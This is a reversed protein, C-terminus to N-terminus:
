YWGLYRFYELEKDLQYLLTKGLAFEAGADCEIDMFFLYEWKKDDCPLSQIKSVNLGYNAVIEMVNALAGSKHALSFEISILNANNSVANEKSLSVFRTCNIGSNVIGKKLIKLGFLRAADVSAIAAINKNSSEKAFKAAFSTNEMENVKVGLEDLFESCQMIAQQHSYIQTIDEIKVDNKAVLVHDVNVASKNLIKFDYKAILTYVQLVMGATSNDVPLVVCDCEGTEVLRCAKEFSECGVHNANPYMQTAASWSYSGENGCYAVKNIVVSPNNRSNELVAGLSWNSDKKILNDYQRKRSTRMVSKWISKYGQRVDEPANASVRDLIEDERAPVYIEGGTEIKNQVVENALEMRKTLLDELKEDIENIELRVSDLSRM